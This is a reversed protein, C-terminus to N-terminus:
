MRTPSLLCIYLLFLTYWTTNFVLSFFCLHPQLNDACSLGASYICHGQPQDMGPHEFWSCFLQFLRLLSFLLWLNNVSASSILDYLSECALTFVWSRLYSLIFPLPAPSDFMKVQCFNSNGPIPFITQPIMNKPFVSTLFQIKSMCNKSFITHCDQLCNIKHTHFESSVISIM